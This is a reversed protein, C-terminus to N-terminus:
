ENIWSPMRVCESPIICVIHPLLHVCVLLYLQIFSYISTKHTNDNHTFAATWPVWPSNQLFSSCLPNGLSLHVHTNSFTKLSHSSCCLLLFKHGFFSGRPSHGFNCLLGHDFHIWLEQHFLDSLRLVFLLQCSNLRAVSFLGLRIFKVDTKSSSLRGWLLNDKNLDDIFVFLYTSESDSLFTKQSLINVKLLDLHKKTKNESEKLKLSLLEM